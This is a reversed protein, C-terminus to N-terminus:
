SGRESEETQWLLFLQKAILEWINKPNDFGARLAFVFGPPLDPRHCEAILNPGRVIAIRPVAMKKHCDEQFAGRDAIVANRIQARFNAIFHIGAGAM